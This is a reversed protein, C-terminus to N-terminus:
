APRNPPSEDRRRNEERWIRVWNRVVWVLMSGVILTGVIFRIYIGFDIRYRDGAPYYITCCLRIRKWLDSVSAFPQPTHFVLEKLPEVFHPIDFSEGYVQRYVKGDADLITVQALHDFGRPTAYFTFGLQDSLGVVERLDGSLFKWRNWGVGHRKAFAAMRSPMDNSTDIGVTIVSFTDDGVADTAEDLADAIQETIVPCAEFCSTYIFSVVLPEGRYDDISVPKGTSDVFEWDAVLRGLADQSLQLAKQADSQTPAEARVPDAALFSSLGMAIGCLGSVLYTRFHQNM